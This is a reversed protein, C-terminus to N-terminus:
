SVTTIGQHTIKAAETDTQCPAGLAGYKNQLAPLRSETLEAFAAAISYYIVSSM